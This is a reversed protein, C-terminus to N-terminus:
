YCRLVTIRVMSRSRKLIWDFLLLSFILIIPLLTINDVATIETLPKQIFCLIFGSLIIEGLVEMVYILLITLLSHKGEFEYIYCFIALM